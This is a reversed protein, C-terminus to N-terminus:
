CHKHKGQEPFVRKRYYGDALYIAALPNHGTRRDKVALVTAPADLYKLCLTDHGVCLGLLINFDVNEQNMILAQGIPNCMVESDDGSLTEECTLGISSKPQSGNKCIVSAVEFGHHRLIRSVTVAEKSLGTCFILGLKQFDLKQCFLIIEEMRCLQGYGEVEVQAAARAMRLNDSEQILAAAQEQISKDKGPCDRLTKEEEYTKCGVLDCEACYPM